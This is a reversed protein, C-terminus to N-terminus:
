YYHQYDNFLLLRQQAHQPMSCSKSQVSRSQVVAHRARLAVCLVIDNESGDVGLAQQNGIQYLVTKVLETHRAFDDSRLLCAYGYLGKLKLIVRLLVEVIEWNELDLMLVTEVVNMIAQSNDKLADPCSAEMCSSISELAKPGRKHDGPLSMSTLVLRLMDPLGHVPLSGRKAMHSTTWLASSVTPVHACAIGNGLVPLMQSPDALVWLWLAWSVVNEDQPQREQSIKAAAVIDERAPLAEEETRDEVASALFGCLAAVASPERQSTHQEKLEQMAEALTDCLILHLRSKLAACTETGSADSDLMHNFLKLAHAM